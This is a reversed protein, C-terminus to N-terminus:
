FDHEPSSDPDPTHSRHKRAAETAPSRNLFVERVAAETAPSASRIKRKPAPPSSSPSVATAESAELRLTSSIDSAVKLSAQLSALLTFECPRLAGDQIAHGARCYDETKGTDAHRWVQETYGELKCLPLLVTLAASSTIDVLEAQSSM